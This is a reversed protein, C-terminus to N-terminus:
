AERLVKGIRRMPPRNLIEIVVDEITLNEGSVASESVDAAFTTKYCCIIAILMCLLGFTKRKNIDM